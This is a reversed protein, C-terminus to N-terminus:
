DDSLEDIADGVTKVTVEQKTDPHTWARDMKTLATRALAVNLEVPEDSELSRVEGTRQVIAQQTRKVRKKALVDELHQQVANRALQGIESDLKRGEAELEERFTPDREMWGFFTREPVGMSEYVRAFIGTRRYAALATARREKTLGRMHGRSPM